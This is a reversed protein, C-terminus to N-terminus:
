ALGQGMLPTSTLSGADPLLSPSVPETGTPRRTDLIAALPSNQGGTAARGSIVPRTRASIADKLSAPLDDREIRKEM